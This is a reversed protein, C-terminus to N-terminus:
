LWLRFHRKMNCIYRKLAEDDDDDPLAGFESTLEHRFREHWLAFDDIPDRTKSTTKQVLHEDVSLGKITAALAERDQHKSATKM